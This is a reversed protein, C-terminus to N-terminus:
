RNGSLLGMELAKAVAHPRSTADLKRLLNGVHFKVTRESSGLITAIEWTSKGEKIWALIESEKPTLRPLPSTALDLQHWNALRRVYDTEIGATLAERCLEAMIGGRWPHFNRYGEQAALGLGEALWRRGEEREERVLAFHAALLRCLCGLYNLGRSAEVARHVTAAAQEHEGTEFLALALGTLSFSLPIPTGAEEAAGVAMRALAVAKAPEGDLLSLDAALHWAFSRDLSDAAPTAPREALLKEVLPRDGLTLALTVGQGYLRQDLAHIGSAAIVKAGAEITALCGPRDFLIWDHVSRTTLWVLQTLPPSKPPM